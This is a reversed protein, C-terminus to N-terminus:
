NPNYGLFEKAKSIDVKDIRDIINFAEYWIEKKTEIALKIAQLANEIKLHLKLDGFPRYEGEKRTPGFRLIIIQTKKTLGYNALIQEAIVKSTSYAIDCDRTSLENIKIRQTLIKTDESISKPEPMGKEIGYYTMSSTFILKKVKNEFAAQSVNFTGECNIKFYDAFTKDEYPKRLAALHIVIDCGKMAKKLNNFNLIDQGNKYDYRIVEYDKPLSKIEL